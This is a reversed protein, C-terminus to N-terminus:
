DEDAEVVGVLSQLDFDRDRGSLCIGASAVTLDNKSIASSHHEGTSTTWEVLWYDEGRDQFSNLEGGGMRLAERLRKEERQEKIKAEFERTKQAVIQYVIRMEPTMGKFRIEEPPTLKKLYERLQEAPIPDARRDIEEFWWSRGDWRAVVPEFKNGETVLHVPVPGEAGVRQRMDSENTPYALWTKGKLKDALWLRIAPFRELYEAIQFLEPEEIVVATKQNAPQFIGWGEFDRPKPVFTYVMGAVRTLVRGGRTCPALFETKQLEAEQSAVKGLLKHINKM